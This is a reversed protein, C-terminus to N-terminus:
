YAKKLYNEPDKQFKADCGACCFYIRKGDHDTFVKENIKGGMVPCKTQNSKQVAKENKLGCSADQAFLVQNAFGLVFVVLVTLLLKKTM